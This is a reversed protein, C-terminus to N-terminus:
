NDVHDTRRVEEEKHVYLFENLPGRDQTNRPGKVLHVILLFVFLCMLIEQLYLTQFMFVVLIIPNYDLLIM